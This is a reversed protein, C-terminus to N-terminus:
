HSTRPKASSCSWCWCRRGSRSGAPRRWTIQHYPSMLSGKVCSEPLRKNYFTFKIRDIVYQTGHVAIAEVARLVVQDPDDIIYTSAFRNGDAGSSVIMDIGHGRSGSTMLNEEMVEMIIMLTMTVIEMRDMAATVTEELAEMAEMEVTVVLAEVGMTAVMEEVVEMGVMVAMAAMAAM